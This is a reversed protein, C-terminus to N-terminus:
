DTNEGDWNGNVQGGHDEKKLEKRQGQQHKKQAICGEWIVLELWSWRRKAKQGTGM